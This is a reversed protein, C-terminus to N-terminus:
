VENGCIDVPKSDYINIFLYFVKNQFSIKNCGFPEFTVHNEHLSIEFILYIFTSLYIM